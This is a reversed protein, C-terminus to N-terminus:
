DEGALFPDAFFVTDRGWSDLISGHGAIAPPLRNLEALAAEKSLFYKRLVVAFRLGEGQKLHPILRAKPADEPYYKLFELGAKLNDAM